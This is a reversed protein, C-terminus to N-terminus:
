NKKMCKNHKYTIGYVYPMKTDIRYLTKARFNPIVNEKINYANFVFLQKRLFVRLISIYAAKFDILVVTM